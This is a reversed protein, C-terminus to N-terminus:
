QARQNYVLVVRLPLPGNHASVVVVVPTSKQISNRRSFLM